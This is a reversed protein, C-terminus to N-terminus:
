KTQVKILFQEGYKSIMDGVAVISVTNSNGIKMQIMREKYGDCICMFYLIISAGKFLITLINNFLLFIYFAYSANIFVILM